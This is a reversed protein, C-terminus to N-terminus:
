VLKPSEMSQEVLRSTCYFYTCSKDANIRNLRSVEAEAAVQSTLVKVVTIKSMPDAQDIPTDIRVIPYVHPYKAHSADPAREM